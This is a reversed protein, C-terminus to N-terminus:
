EVEKAHHYFEEEKGNMAKRLYNLVIIFLFTELTDGKSFHM